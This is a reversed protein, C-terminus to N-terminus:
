ALAKTTMGRLLGTGKELVWMIEISNIYCKYIDYYKFLEEKDLSLFLLIVKSM